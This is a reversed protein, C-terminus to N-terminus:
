CQTLAIVISSCNQNLGVTPISHMTNFFFLMTFVNNYINYTSFVTLPSNGEDVNDNARGMGV